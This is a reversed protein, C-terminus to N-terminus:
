RVKEFVKRRLMAGITHVDDLYWGHVEPDSRFNKAAESADLLAYRLEDITYRSYQREKEAFPYGGSKTGNRRARNRSLKAPAGSARWYVTYRRENVPKLVLTQVHRILRNRSGPRYPDRGQAIGGKMLWKAADMADAYSDFSEYVQWGGGKFTALYGHSGQVAFPKAVPNQRAGRQQRKMSYTVKGGEVNVIDYGSHRVAWDVSQPQHRLLWRFAAESGKPGPGFQKITEGDQTVAWGDTPNMRVLKSARPVRPHGLVFTVAAEPFHHDSIMSHFEAKRADTMRAFAKQFQEITRGFKVKFEIPDRLWSPVANRRVRRPNVMVPVRRTTEGRFRRTTGGVTGMNWERLLRSKLDDSLDVWDASAYGSAREPSAGAFRLAAQRQRDTLKGWVASIAPNKM